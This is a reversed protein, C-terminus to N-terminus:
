QYKKCAGELTEKMSQRFDAPELVELHETYQLCWYFLALNNGKIVAYTQDNETIIRASKGFWEKVIGVLYEQYIRIKASIISANGGFMYVNSNVYEAIDIGKECGKLEKVPKSDEDLIHIKSIYEIRYNAIEEFYAHSCVLYYKGQSNVMFYPNVVYEKERRPVLRGEKDYHKYVFAVKKGKDIAENLIDITYFLENNESRWVESSKHIYNYQRRDYMSLFGSLKKALASAQKGGISKSSFVADILFKIENENFERECLYVGQKHVKIIDFGLDILLEISNAVTKRELEVGYLQYLKSIIDKQMLPHSANSYERLVELIRFTAVKKENIM